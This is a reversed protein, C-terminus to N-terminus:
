PQKNFLPILLRASHSSPTLAAPERSFKRGRQPLSFSHDPVYLCCAPSRTAGLPPQVAVSLASLPARTLATRTPKVAAASVRAQSGRLAPPLGGKVPAAPPHETRGSACPQESGSGRGRRCRRTACHEINEGKEHRQPTQKQNDTRARM